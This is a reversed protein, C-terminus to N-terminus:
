VSIEIYKARTSPKPIEAGEQRLGDIHFQIAEKMRALTTEITTGTATCGLLDPSYASYNKTAREIIVLYKFM